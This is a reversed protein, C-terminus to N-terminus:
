LGVDVVQGMRGAEGTAPARHLTDRPDVGFGRGRGASEVTQPPQVLGLAHHADGACPRLRRIIGREFEAFVARLGGQPFQGAIAARGFKEGLVAVRHCLQAFPGVVLEFFRAAESVRHFVISRRVAVDGDFPVVGEGFDAGGQAVQRPVIDDEVGRAMRTELRAIEVGQQRADVAIVVQRLAAIHAVLGSRHAEGLHDTRGDACHREVIQGLGVAIEIEPLVGARVARAEQVIELIQLIATALDDGEIRHDLLAEDGEDIRLVRQRHHRALFCDNGVLIVLDFRASVDRRDQAQAFHNDFGVVLRLLRACAGDDVMIEDRLVGGAEIIEDGAAAVRLPGIDFLGAPQGLGRQAIRRLDIDLGFLNDANVPHAEGLVGM